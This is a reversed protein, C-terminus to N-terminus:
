ENVSWAVFPGALEVLEAAASLDVAVGTVRVGGSRRANLIEARHHSPDVYPVDDGWLEVMVDLNLSAAVDCLAAILDSGPTTVAISQEGDLACIIAAAVAFGDAPLAPVIVRGATTPVIGRAFWIGVLGPDAFVRVKADLVDFVDIVARVPHIPLSEDGRREALVADVIAVLQNRNDSLPAPAWDRALFALHWPEIELVQADLPLSEGLENPDAGAVIVLDCEDLGGLAPDDVQVGVVGRWAPHDSSVVGFAGMTTMLGAGLRLAADGIESVCGDRVVGPGVILMTRFEALSPSLRMLQDSRQMALPQVDGEMQADLPLEIEIAAHVQGLSWGAIAAPLDPFPIPIAQTPAGPQSSLRIRGGSLLAVGPRANPAVALRGEADALAIAVEPSPVEVIAIGELQNLLHGPAAFARTVGLALLCRSILSEVSSNTLPDPMSCCTPSAVAIGLPM